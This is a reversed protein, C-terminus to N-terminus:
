YRLPRHQNRFVRYQGLCSSKPTAVELNTEQGKSEKTRGAPTPRLTVVGSVQGSEESWELQSYGPYRNM